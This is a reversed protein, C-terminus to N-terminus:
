IYELIYLVQGPKVAIVNAKSVTSLCLSVATVDLTCHTCVHGALSMFAFNSEFYYRPSIMLNFSSNFNCRIFNCIQFESELSSHLM